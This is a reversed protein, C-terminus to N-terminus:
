CSGTATLSRYYLLLIQDKADSVSISSFVFAQSLCNCICIFICIYINATVALPYYYLLLIQDRPLLFRQTQRINCWCVFSVGKVFLCVFLSWGNLGRAFNDFRLSDMWGMWGMWRYSVSCGGDWVANNNSDPNGRAMTMTWLHKPAM